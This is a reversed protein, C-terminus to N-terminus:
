SEKDKVTCALEELVVMIFSPSLRRKLHPVAPLGLGSTDHILASPSSVGIPDQCLLQRKSM